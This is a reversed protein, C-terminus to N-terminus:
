SAHLHSLRIPHAYRGLAPRSFEVAPDHVKPLAPVDYASLDGVGAASFPDPQITRIWIARRRLRFYVAVLSLAGLEEM